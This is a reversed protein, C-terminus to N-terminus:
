SARGRAGPRGAQDPRRARLPRRPDRGRLDHRRRDARDQRRPLRVAPQALPVAAPPGRRVGRGPRRADRARRLLPDARRARRPRAGPGGCRHAARDRPRHGDAPVDRRRRRPLRPPVGARLRGAEETRTTEDLVTAGLPELVENLAAVSLAGRRLLRPQSAACTSSRRRRARPRRAATSCWRSARVSCGRPRAAETAAPLGSLNASSVALPGTRELLALAIEHDPM